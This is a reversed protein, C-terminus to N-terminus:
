IEVGGCTKMADVPVVKAKLVRDMEREFKEDSEFTFYL